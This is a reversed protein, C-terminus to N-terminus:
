SVPHRRAHERQQRHPLCAPQGPGRRSATVPPAAEGVHALPQRRLPAARLKYTHSGANIPAACDVIGPIPDKPPNLMSNFADSDATGTGTDTRAYLLGYTDDHATGATEWRRIVNTAPQRATIAWASFIRSQRSCSSPCMYIPASTRRPRLPSPGNHHKRCTREM